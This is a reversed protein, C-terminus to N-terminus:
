RLPPKSLKRSGAAPHPKGLHSRRARVHVQHGLLSQVACLPVHLLAPALLHGVPYCTGLLGPGVQHNHTLSGPRPMSPMHEMPKVVQFGMPDRGLSMCRFAPGRLGAIAALYQPLAAVGACAEHSPGGLEWKYPVASPPVFYHNPGGEAM